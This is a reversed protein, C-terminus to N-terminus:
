VPIATDTTTATDETATDTTATDTSATDVPVATDVGTDVATDVVATDATDDVPATDHNVGTDITVNGTDGTDVPVATDDGCLDHPNIDNDTKHTCAVIVSLVVLSGIVLNRM